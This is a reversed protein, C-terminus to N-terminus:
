QNNVTTLNISLKFLWHGKQWDNNDGVFTRYGFSPTVGIVIKNFSYIDKQLGLHFDIFWRNLETEPPVPEHGNNYDLEYDLMRNITVGAKFTEFFLEKVPTNILLPVGLSYYTFHWDDPNKPRESEKRQDYESRQLSLGTSFRAKESLQYHILADVNPHIYLSKWDDDISIMYAGTAGVNLSFRGTNKQAKANQPGVFVICLIAGILLKLPM